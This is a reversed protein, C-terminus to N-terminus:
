AKVRALSARLDRQVSKRRSVDDVGLVAYAREAAEILEAVAARAKANREIHLEKVFPAMDLGQLCRGVTEMVALVDVPASM